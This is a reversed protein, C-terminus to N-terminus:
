NAVDMIEQMVRVDAVAASAPTRLPMAGRLAGVFGEAQRFFAWGPAVHHQETIFRGRGPRLMSVEASAQRRLPIPTRVTIEGREFTLTTSERWEHSTTQGGRITVLTDGATLTAALARSEIFTATRATM